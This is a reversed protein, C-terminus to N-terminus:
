ILGIQTSMVVGNTERFDHHIPPPNGLQRLLERCDNLINSYAPHDDTIVTLIEKCDLSIELPMLGKDLALELGQLLATLEAKIKNTIRLNGMYGPVWNCKEDRFVSWNGM